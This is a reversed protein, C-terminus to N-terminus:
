KRSRKVMEAKARDRGREWAKTGEPSGFIRFSCNMVNAGYKQSEYGMRECRELDTEPNSKISFTKVKKLKDVKLKKIM